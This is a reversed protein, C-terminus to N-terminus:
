EPRFDQGWLARFEPCALLLDDVTGQGVLRGGDLVLVQSARRLVAPRHSVALCTLDADALLQCWLRQETEVDLASSLDDVVLLDPERVLARAAAARQVQGGSLRAGRAGVMTELGREFSAVDSDFAAMGVARAVTADSVPYGLRINDRLSESFFRPVQATYAVRPPIMFGALDSIYQGNWYVGGRDTPLLGLLVRLLTTKGSGIRGTVVTLEGRRIQFSVDELGRESGPYQFGLGRAAVCELFDGSRAPAVRSTSPFDTPLVEAPASLAGPTAAPMLALLRDISVETQRNKGLFDGFNGTVVTLWGLYSVVLAFDGVTLRGDQMSQAAILLLVGVGLDGGNGAVSRVVQGFVLDVLAARRRVENLGRLHEVVDREAGAAKIAVVGDFVDGLLGTIDGLSRQASERYRTLRRAVLRVGFVVLAIPLVVFFTMRPDIRVFVALVIVLVAGQGVPDMTWTLFGVVYQVDDRFRSIAEGTSAPLARAGPQALIQNLINRRLLAAALLQTTEEFYVAAAMAGLRTIAAAVLLALLSPPNIGVNASGSLEDLFGRVILGPVLPFLYGIASAFLGSLLYLGLRFRALHVIQQFYSV